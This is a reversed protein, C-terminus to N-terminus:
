FVISWLSSRRGYNDFPLANEYAEM